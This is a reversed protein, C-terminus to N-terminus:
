RLKVTISLDGNLDFAADGFVPPGMRGRADRSFGYRETPMGVVNSDLKDNGNEDHFVSLAYRGPKLDRYVLVTKSAAPEREGKLPTKLWTADDGYLAGAVTGKDSRANDVEVTLDYASAAGSAAVLLIAAALRSSLRISFPTM